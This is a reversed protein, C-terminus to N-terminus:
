EVQQAIYEEWILIYFFSVCMYRNLINSITDFYIYTNNHWSVVGFSSVYQSRLGHIPIAISAKM